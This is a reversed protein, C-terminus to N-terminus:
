LSYQHQLLFLAHYARNIKGSVHAKAFRTDAMCYTDQPVSSKQCHIFITKEIQCIYAPLDCLFDIFSVLKKCILKDSGTDILFRRFQISAPYFM